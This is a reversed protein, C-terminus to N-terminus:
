PVLCDISREAILSKQRARGICFGFSGGEEPESPPEKGFMDLTVLLADQLYPRSSSVVRTGRLPALELLSEGMERAKPSLRARASLATWFEARARDRESM